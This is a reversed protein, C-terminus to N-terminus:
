EVFCYFGCQTFLIEADSPKQDDFLILGTATFVQTIGDLVLFFALRRIILLCHIM